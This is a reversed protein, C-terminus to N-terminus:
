ELPRGESLPISRLHDNLKARLRDSDACFLITGAMTRYVASRSIKVPQAPDLLAPNNWAKALTRAAFFLSWLNFLRMRRRRPPILLTFELAAKLDGAALAILHNLVKLAESAAAANFFQDATVGHRHMLEVPLYCWGRRYDRACDKVINTLQLARAFSQDLTLMTRRDSENIEPCYFCFVETLMRGVTGAVYYCYRDLDEQSQLQHLGTRQDAPIDLTQQMGLSMERVCQGITARVPDPLPAFTEAVRWANRALDLECSPELEGPWLALWNRLPSSELQPTSFLEAYEAVLRLRLAHDLGPTDEVTDVIRCFLYACLVARHLEGDLVGINLAFTRSVRPLVGRCYAYSDASNKTM